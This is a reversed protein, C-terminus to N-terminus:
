GKSINQNGVQSSASYFLKALQVAKVADVASIQMVDKADYLRAKMAGVDIMPANKAATAAFLALAQENSIAFMNNVMVGDLAELMERSTLDCFDFQLETVDQGMARIPRMLKLKGRTLERLQTLPDTVPKKPEAQPENEEQKEGDLIAKARNDMDESM